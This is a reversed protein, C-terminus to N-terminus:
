LFCAKIYAALKLIIERAELVEQRDQENLSDFGNRKRAIQNLNSGIHQLGAIISLVEKPLAQQRVDVRWTLGLQRLYESATLGVLRASSVIKQQEPSSCRVGILRDRPSDKKPRGGKNKTPKKDQMISRKQIRLMLLPQLYTPTTSNQYLWFM